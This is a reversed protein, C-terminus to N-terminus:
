KTIVFGPIFNFFLRGNMISSVPFGGKGFESGQCCGWLESGGGTSQSPEFYCMDMKNKDKTYKIEM